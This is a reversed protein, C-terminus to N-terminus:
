CHKPGAGANGGADKYASTMACTARNPHPDHKAANSGDGQVLL